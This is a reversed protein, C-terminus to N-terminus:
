VVSKRDELYGVRCKSMTSVRGEDPIVDGRMIKLLTSKGAGNPGVLGMHDERNVELSLNRYLRIDGYEHTLGQVTLISM